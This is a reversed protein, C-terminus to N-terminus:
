PLSSPSPSLPPPPPPPPPPLRRVPDRVGESLRDETEGRRASIESELRRRASTMGLLSQGPIAPLPAEGIVGGELIQITKSRQLQKEMREQLDEDVGDLLGAKKLREYLMRNDLRLAAIQELYDREKTGLEAKTAETAARSTALSREIRALKDKLKGVNGAAGEALEERLQEVTAKLQAVQARADDLDDQTEALREEDGFSAIIQQVSSGLLHSFDGDLGQRDTVVASVLREVLQFHRMRQEPETPLLLLHKLTSLLFDRARGDTNALIAEFCGRPDSFNMRVEEKMHEALELADLEADEYHESILRKLNAHDLVLHKELIRKLGALEMAARLHMRIKLDRERLLERILLM